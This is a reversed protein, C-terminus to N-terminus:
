AHMTAILAERLLRGTDCGVVGPKRCGETCESIHQGLATAFQDTATM